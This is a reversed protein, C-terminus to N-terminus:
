RVACVLVHSKLKKFSESITSNPLHSGEKLEINLIEIRGKAFTDVEIASPFRLLKAIENATAREPNLYMSLGLEDKIYDIEEAYEPNRIRAITHKAGIKKAILCCLM